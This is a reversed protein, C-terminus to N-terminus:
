YIRASYIHVRLLDNLVILGLILVKEMLHDEVNFM